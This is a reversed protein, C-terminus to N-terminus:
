EATKMKEELWNKTKQLLLIDLELQGSEKPNPLIPANTTKWELQNLRLRGLKDQGNALFEAEFRPLVVQLNEFQRSKAMVKNRQNEKRLLIADTEIWKKKLSTAAFTTESDAQENQLHNLEDSFWGLRSLAASPLNRKGTEIQKLMELSVGLLDALEEQNFGFAARIEKTSRM